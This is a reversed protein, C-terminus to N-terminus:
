SCSTALYLSKSRNDRRAKLVERLRDTLEVKCTRRLPTTEDVMYLRATITISSITGDIVKDSFEKWNVFHEEEFPAFRLESGNSKAGEILFPVFPRSNNRGGQVLEYIQNAVLIAPDNRGDIRVSATVREVLANYGSAGTNAAFVPLVVSLRGDPLGSGDEAGWCRDRSSSHCRLEMPRDTMALFTVEAGIIANRVQWGVSFLSIVLAALSIRNGADLGSFWSGKSEDENGQEVM